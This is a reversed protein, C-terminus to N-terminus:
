HALGSGGVGGQAGMGPPDERGRAVAYGKDHQGERQPSRDQQGHPRRGDETVRRQGRVLYGRRHPAEERERKVGERDGRLGDDPAVEAGPADVRRARHHPGQQAPPQEEAEGDARERSGGVRLRRHAPCATM